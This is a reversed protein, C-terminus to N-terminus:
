SKMCYESFKICMKPSICVRVQFVDCPIVCLQEDIFDPLNTLSVTVTYQPDRHYM